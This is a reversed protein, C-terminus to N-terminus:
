RALGEVDQALAACAPAAFTAASGKLKHAARYLAEADRDRAASRLEQQMSPLNALFTTVLKKLLVENNMARALAQARDFCKLEVTPQDGTPPPPNIQPMVAALSPEVVALLQEPFFPKALYDDMGAELLRERDGALVHATLAVIRVRRGSDQELARIIATAEPGDMEPMQVDMLIVDFHERQYYHVAERGTAALCVRHGRRELVAIALSQNTPHDEALLVNLMREPAVRIRAQARAELQAATAQLNDLASAQVPEVDIAFHFVSGVGETSELWIRGGMLGVIQRCISLGLGTGGFRRTTSTDAQTFADFIRSQAASAIGIGSDRVSIQLEFGQGRATTQAVDVRVSGATTFKIANSVLNTVVQMLRHPDCRILAPLEADVQLTFKLAKERASNAFPQLGRELVERLDFVIPSLQLKGAEVKSFDLIDNLLHLLSIGSEKVQALYNRQSGTLLSDLVLSTLGLIGNLPTRIEHSMNALFETKARAAQEAALRALQLDTIDWTAGVIAVVTGDDDFEGKTAASMYRIDGGPLVIRYQWHFDKGGGVAPLIDDAFERRDDPHVREMFQPPEREPTWEYGYLYYVQQDFFSQGTVLDNRWVGIGAAENALALRSKLESVQRFSEALKEEQQKRETLDREIKSYGYLMGSEDYLATISVDAWFRSGDKRVRWGKDEFHGLRRAEILAHPLGQPHNNNEAAPQETVPQHAIQENPYLVSLHRGLIEAATYGYIRQAAGNWSTFHGDPDLTVIVYDIAGEVLLRFREESRKLLETKADVLRRVVDTQATVLLAFVALLSCFSLGGALVFWVTWSQKTGGIVPHASTAVVTWRRGAVDIQRSWRLADPAPTVGPDSEYLWHEAASFDDDRIAFQIGRTDIGQLSTALMKPLYFAAAIFGRLNRRREEVSDLPVGLRYLPSFILFGQPKAAHSLQLLRINGTAELRGSDRARELIQRRVPESGNDFGHTESRYPEIFTVPFYERRLGAEILEGNRDFQRVVFDPFGEARTRAEYDARQDAPVWANWSLGVLGPYRQAMDTTYSGFEQRTIEKSAAFMATTDRLIVLYQSLQAYLNTVVSQALNEFEIRRREQEQNRAAFFMVVTLAFVALLASCVIAKRRASVLDRAGFLLLIVPTFVLVGISDGVWWTLWNYAASALPLAGFVTLTLIGLSANLLCALPGGCLMLLAIDRIHELPNPLRVYRRVLWAGGLSQLTAGCAIAAAISGSIVMTHANSPDFSTFLNVGVSGILVGPWYRYGLLLIGALAFGSPPWMATAYGPPVALLLGLRGSIYYALALVMVRGLYGALNAGRCVSLPSM